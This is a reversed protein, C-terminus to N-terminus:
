KYPLFYMHHFNSSTKEKKSLFFPIVLMRNYINYLKRTMNIIEQHFFVLFQSYPLWQVDGPEKMHIIDYTSNIDYRFISIQETHIILDFTGNSINKM